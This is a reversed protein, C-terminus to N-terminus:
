ARVTFRMTMSLLRESRQALHESSAAMEDVLATNQRNVSELEEVAAKVQGIVSEQQRNARAIGLVLNEVERVSDTIERLSADSRAVLSNGDGVRAGATEILANIEKASNASRQALARVESAVVAFGRGHEGARAAEVAANLALLNTQFAIEDILDSIAGIQATGSNIGEMAQSTQQLLQEGAEAQERAAIVLEGARAAGSTTDQVSRAMEGISSATQELNSAQSGTRVGIEKNGRAIEGSSRKVTSAMQNVEIVLARLADLAQNLASTVNGVVGPYDRDIGVTLDGEAMAQAAKGIAGFATSLQAVGHNVNQKLARLDGELDAEIRQQFDGDVLGQMVRAVDRVAQDIAGMAHGLRKACRGFRGHCDTETGQAFRGEALAASLQDIQRMVSKMEEMSANVGRLARAFEGHLGTPQALRFFRGQALYATTTISDRLCAEMQDLMTNLKWALVGMQDAIGIGTVRSELVGDAAQEIVRSMELFLRLPRATRHQVLAAFVACFALAIWGLLSGPVSRIYEVACLALFALPLLTALRIEFTLSLNKM